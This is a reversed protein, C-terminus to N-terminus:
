SLPAEMGGRNGSVNTAPTPLEAGCGDADLALGRTFPYAGVKQGKRTFSRDRMAPEEQQMEEGHLYTAEPQGESGQNRQPVEILDQM